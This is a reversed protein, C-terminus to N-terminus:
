IPVGEIYYIAVGDLSDPITQKLKATGSPSVALMIYPRSAKAGIWMGSVGDAQLLSKHRRMIREASEVDRQSAGEAAAKGLDFDAKKMAGLRILARL